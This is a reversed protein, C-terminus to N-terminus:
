DECRPAPPSGYSRQFWGFDVSDVDGDTDYDAAVSIASGDHPIAPGSAHTRFIDFDVLDVDCDADFDFRDIPCVNIGTWRGFQLVDHNDIRNNGTLDFRQLENDPDSIDAPLGLWSDDFDIAIPPIGATCAFEEVRAKLLDLDLPNVVGNLDMDGPLRANLVYYGSQANFSVFGFPTTPTVPGGAFPYQAGYLNVRHEFYPTRSFYTAYGAVALFYDGAPPIPYEDWLAHGLDNGQLGPTPNPDPNAVFALQPMGWTNTSVWCQCSENWVVSSERPDEPQWYALYNLPPRIYIGDPRVNSDGTSPARVWETVAYCNGQSDFLALEADPGSPLLMGGPQIGFSSGFLDFVVPTVGDSHFKYWTLSPLAGSLRGVMTAFASDGIAIPGLYYELTSPNPIQGFGGSRQEPTQQGFAVATLVLVSSAGACVCRRFESACSVGIRDNHM